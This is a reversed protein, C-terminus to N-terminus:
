NAFDDFIVNVIAGLLIVLATLYLWLMLIIMAGLSGYTGAYNDFFSLYVQFIISVLLWLCVGVISGPTIWRWVKKKHDPLISYLLFFALLMAVVVILWSLPRVVYPAAAPLIWSALRSSYFISGLAISILLCVCVTILPALLLTKWRARSEKLNYVGNLAVRLNDLGASASWLTIVLGITLTTRSSDIIVESITNQALEFASPPMIKGLYLFLESLLDSANGLVLGILSILFLLLPFFAFSFYFAVAAARSFVDEEFSKKYLHRLLNQLSFQM